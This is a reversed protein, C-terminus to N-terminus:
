NTVPKARALPQAVATALWALAAPFAVTLVILLAGSLGMAGGAIRSFSWVSGDIASWALLTAWALAAALAAAVPQHRVHRAVVGALAAFLPIAWWGLVWTGIAFSLALLAVRLAFRM